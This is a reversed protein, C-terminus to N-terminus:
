LPGAAHWAFLQTRTGDEHVLLRGRRMGAKVLVRHSAENEPAATAIVHRLGLAHQAHQLLAAAVETALGLGWHSRRYAYKLEPEAQGGPHVLGCFGVVEHTQTLEVAYMGYGRRSYNAQTVHLWEQCQAETIPHGDGVWRMAQADGYVFLLSTLDHPCWRRVTCRPTVFEHSLMPQLTAIVPFHSLGHGHVRM